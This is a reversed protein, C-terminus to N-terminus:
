TLGGTRMARGVKDKQWVGTRGRHTPGLTVEETLGKANEWTSELTRGEIDGPGTHMSFRLVSNSNGAERLVGPCQCHGSQRNGLAVVM